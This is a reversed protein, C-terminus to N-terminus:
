DNDAPLARDAIEIVEGSTADVKVTKGGIDVDFVLKDNWYELDIEDVAGPTATQAVAEAQEFTLKAQSLLARGDDLAPDDSDNDDSSDDLDDVAPIRGTVAFNVATGVALFAILAIAAFMLKRSTM